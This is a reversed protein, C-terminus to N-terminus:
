SEQGPWKFLCKEWHAMWIDGTIIMHPTHLRFMQSVQTVFTEPYHIHHRTSRVRWWDIGAYFITVNLVGVSFSKHKIHKWQYMLVMMKATCAKGEGELELVDNKLHLKLWLRMGIAEQVKNRWAGRSGVGGVRSPQGKWENLRNNWLANYPYRRHPLCQITGLGHFHIIEAWCLWSGLQPFLCSVVLIVYCRTFSPPETTHWPFMTFLFDVQGPYTFYSM